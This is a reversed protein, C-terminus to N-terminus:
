QKINLVASLTKHIIIIIIISTNIFEAASMVSVKQIKISEQFFIYILVYM